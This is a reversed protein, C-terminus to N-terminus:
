VRSSGSNANLSFYDHVEYVINLFVADPSINIIPKHSILLAALLTLVFTKKNDSKNGNM